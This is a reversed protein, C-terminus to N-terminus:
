VFTKDYKLIMVYKVCLLIVHIVTLYKVLPEHCTFHTGFADSELRMMTNGHFEMIFTVVAYVDCWIVM